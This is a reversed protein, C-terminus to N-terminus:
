NFLQDIKIRWGTAIIQRAINNEHIEDMEATQYIDALNGSGDDLISVHYNSRADVGTINSHASNTGMISQNLYVWKQQSIVGDTSGYLNIFRQKCPLMCSAIIKAEPKLGGRVTDVLNQYRALVDNIPDGPAMDNLGIQLTVGDLTLKNPYAIWASLQQNITNGPVAITDCFYGDNIESPSFVYSAVPNQGLYPAITSDGVAMWKLLRRSGMTMIVKHLIM